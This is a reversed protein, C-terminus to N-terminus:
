SKQFIKLFESLSSFYRQYRKSVMEAEGLILYGKPALSHHLKEFIKEQYELNFYILVNRCFVLDFNGFISEPPAYSKKELLDYFSFNVMNKIKFVIEFSNNKQIFYKSLLGYKVEKISEFDYVGEKASKLSKKDIDTAFIRLDLELNEKELFESFIIALSYPEEGSACGASWIRLYKEKKKLKGFILRPALKESIFEFVFHNRFFQSVNITLADILEDVEIQNNILYKFYQNINGTETALLRKNIRRELMSRRYGSFDFGKQKQLYDLIKKIKCNM